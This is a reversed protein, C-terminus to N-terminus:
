LRVKEGSFAISPVGNNSYQFTCYSLRIVNILFLTQIFYAILLPCHGAQFSYHFRELVNCGKMENNEKDNCEAEQGGTIKLM